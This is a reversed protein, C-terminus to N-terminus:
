LWSDPSDVHSSGAPKLSFGVPAVRSGPSGLLCPGRLETSGLFREDTDPASTHTCGLGGRVSVLFRDDIDSAAEIDANSTSM